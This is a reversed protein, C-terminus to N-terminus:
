ETNSSLVSDEHNSGPVLTPGGIRDAGEEVMEDCGM